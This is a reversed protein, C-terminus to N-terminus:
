RVEHLRDGQDGPHRARNRQDSMGHSCRGAGERQAVAERNPGRDQKRRRRIGLLIGDLEGAIETEGGRRRRGHGVAQLLTIANAQSIEMERSRSGRNRDEHNVVLPIRFDRDSLTSGDRLRPRARLKEGRAPEAVVSDQLIWSDHRAGSAKKNSSVGLRM